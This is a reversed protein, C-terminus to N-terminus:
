VKGGGTQQTTASPGVTPAPAFPRLRARVARGTGRGQAGPARNRAPQESDAARQPDRLSPGDFRARGCPAHPPGLPPRDAEYVRGATGRPNARAWSIDLKLPEVALPDM